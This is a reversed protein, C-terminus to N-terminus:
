RRLHKLAKTRKTVPPAEYRFKRSQIFAELDRLDIRYGKRRGVQVVALVGTEILAYVNAASCCLRNAAQKITLLQLDGFDSGVTAM